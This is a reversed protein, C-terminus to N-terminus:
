ERAGLMGYSCMRYNITLHHSTPASAITRRNTSTHAKQYTQYFLFVVGSESSRMKQLVLCVCVCQLFMFYNELVGVCQDNYAPSPPQMSLSQPQM